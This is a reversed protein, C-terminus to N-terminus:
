VIIPSSAVPTFRDGRGKVSREHAGPRPRKSVTVKLDCWAIMDALVTGSPRQDQRRRYHGTHPESRSRHVFGQSM